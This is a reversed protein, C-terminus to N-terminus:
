QLRPVASSALLSRVGSGALGVTAGSAVQRLFFQAVEDMSPMRRAVFEKLPKASDTIMATYSRAGIGLSVPKARHSKPLYGNLVSYATRAHGSHLWGEFSQGAVGGSFVSVLSQWDPMFRPNFRANAYAWGIANRKYAMMEWSETIGVRLTIGNASMGRLLFLLTPTNVPMDLIGRFNNTINAPECSTFHTYDFIADRDCTPLYTAEYKAGMLLPGCASLRPQGSIDDLTTYGAPITASEGSTTPGTTGTGAKTYLADPYDCIRFNSLDGAYVMGQNDIFTSVIEVEARLGVCRRPVDLDYSKTASASAYYSGPWDWDWKGIGCTPTSGAYYSSSTPYYISRDWPSSAEVFVMPTETAAYHNTGLQTDHSKPFSGILLAIDGNNNMHVTSQFAGSVPTVGAVTPPLIPVQYTCSRVAVVTPNANANPGRSPFTPDVFSHLYMAPARERESAKVMEVKPRPASQKRAPASNGKKKNKAMCITIPAKWGRARLRTM